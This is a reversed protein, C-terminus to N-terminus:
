RGAWDPPADRCSRAYAFSDELSAAREVGVANVVAGTDIGLAWMAVAAYWSAKRRAKEMESDSFSDAYRWLRENAGACRLIQGPDGREPRESLGRNAVGNTWYRANDYAVPDASQSAPAATDKQVSYIAAAYGAAFASIFLLARSVAGFISAVRPSDVSQQVPRMSDRALSGVYRSEERKEESLMRISARRRWVSYSALMAITGLYAILVFGFIRYHEYRYVILVGQAM